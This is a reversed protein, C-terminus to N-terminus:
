SVHVTLATQSKKTAQKGDHNDAKRKTPQKKPGFQSCKRTVMKKVQMTYEDDHGLKIAYDDDRGLEVVVVAFKGDTRVHDLTTESTSACLDDSETGYYLVRYSTTTVGLEKYTKSWWEEAFVCLHTGVRHAGLCRVITRPKKRGRGKSTMGRPLVVALVVDKVDKVDKTTNDASTSM